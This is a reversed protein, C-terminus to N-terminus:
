IPQGHHQQADPSDPRGADDTGGADPMGSGDKDPSDAPSEGAAEDDGDGKKNDDLLWIVTPKEDKENTQDGDDKTKGGGGGASVRKMPSDVVVSSGDSYKVSDVIVVTKKEKVVVREKEFLDPGVLAGVAVAILAAAAAGVIAQRYDTLWAVNDDEARDPAATSARPDGGDTQSDPIDDFDVVDASEHHGGDTEEDGDIRSEVGSWVEEFAVDAGVEDHASRAATNLEQLAE